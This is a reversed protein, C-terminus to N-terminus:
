LRVAFHHRESERKMTSQEMKKRINSSPIYEKIFGKWCIGSLGKVAEWKPRIDIDKQNVHNKIKSLLNPKQFSANVSNATIVSTSSVFCITSKPQITPAQIKSRLLSM